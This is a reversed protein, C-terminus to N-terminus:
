ILAIIIIIEIVIIMRPSGGVTWNITKAKEKRRESVPLSNILHGSRVSATLM